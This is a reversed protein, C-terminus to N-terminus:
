SSVAAFAPRVVDNVLRERQERPAFSSRLGNVVLQEVEAWSLEHTTAVVHYEGSVTVDSMLRNDTNIGVNFGLRLFRAIPHAEISEVAGVHVHCTPAMELHIQHDMVYRALQGLIAQGNPTLLMGSQLRVGHGIRHAGHALADSILELDPPESAHITLNLLHTRAHALAEAHMSPPFGTEAGALDFAVVKPETFRVRETFTAIELSRDGTRMACLILNVTIPTGAAAADREATRVGDAVAEVIEQLSLGQDQHLEPAFRIEAYVVGDAVLDEVAERAVRRIADEHQMVALTHEFTALYKSLDKTSAGATFWASLEGVDTSPLSWGITDALEIVTAPRLGGDLHDHLLVKPLSRITDLSIPAPM